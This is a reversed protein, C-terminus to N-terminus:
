FRSNIRVYLNTKQSDILQRIITLKVLIAKLSCFPNLIIKTNWKLHLEFKFKKPWQFLIKKM